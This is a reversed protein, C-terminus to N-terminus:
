FQHFNHLSMKISPKHRQSMESEFNGLVWKWKGPASDASDKVMETRVTM